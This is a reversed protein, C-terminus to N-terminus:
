NDPKKLLVFEFYALDMESIKMEKEWGLVSLWQAEDPDEAVYAPRWIREHIQRMWYYQGTELMPQRRINLCPREKEALKKDKPPLSPNSNAQKLNRITDYPGRWDDGPSKRYQGIMGNPALWWYYGKMM